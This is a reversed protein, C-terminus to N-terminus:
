KVVVKRIVEEKLSVLKPSVKVLFYAKGTVLKEIVDQLNIDKLNDAKWEHVADLKELLAIM